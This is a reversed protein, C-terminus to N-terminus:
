RLHLNLARERVAGPSVDPDVIDLYAGPDRQILACTRELFVRFSERNVSHCAAWIRYIYIYECCVLTAAITQWYPLSM